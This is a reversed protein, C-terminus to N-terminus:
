YENIIGKIFKEVRRSKYEPLLKKLDQWNPKSLEVNDIRLSEFVPKLDKWNKRYIYVYDVLAKLPHAMFFPQSDSDDVRAVCTYFIRLPIHSYSFTGVPTKFECSKKKSVSTVTYVAEPILGHYSLASELSIYSPGYIRQGLSYLNLKNRQYRPALCYLGRRLHLLEKDAVARKLLGYHAHDSKQFLNAVDAHSFVDCPM